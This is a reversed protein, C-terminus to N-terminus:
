WRHAGTRHVLTDRPRTTTAAQIPQKSQSISEGVKDLIAIPLTHAPYLL